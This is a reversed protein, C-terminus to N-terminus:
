DKWDSLPHKSQFSFEKPQRFESPKKEEFRKKTFFVKWSNASFSKARRWPLTENLVSTEFFRAEYNTQKVPNPFVSSVSLFSKATFEDLIYLQLCLWLSLSLSSPLSLFYILTLSLFLSLSLFSLCFLSLLSSVSISTATSRPSGCNRRKGRPPPNRSRRIAARVAPPRNSNRCRRRRRVSKEGTFPIFGLSRSFAALDVSVRRKM